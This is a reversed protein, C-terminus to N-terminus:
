DFAGGAANHSTMLANTMLANASNMTLTAGGGGGAVM